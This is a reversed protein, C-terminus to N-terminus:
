KGKVRGMEEATATQRERAAKVNNNGFPMSYTLRVQRPEQDNNLRFVLGNDNVTARFNSTKFLDRVAFKLKAGNKFKKSFGVDLSGQAKSKFVGFVLPTNMWGSLEASYGKGLTFSNDLNFNWSWKQNDISYDQYTGKYSNWFGTVSANSNWWKKIPIPSAITFSFNDYDAFNANTQYASRSNPEQALIQSLANKTKSYFVSTSVMQRYTHTLMISNTFEPQLYPNGKGYTFEDIYFVFPNLDEYSPRNIRLSYALSLMNNDNINYNVNATPFLNTYSRTVTSDLTMSYGKNQTNEVRLGTQISVKKGIPVNYNVYAANINETYAFDNNRKVDPKFTGDPLKEEFFISNDIKVWSSKAGIEVSSKNKFPHVYDAKLAYVGFSTRNANKLFYANKTAKAAADLYNNNVAQTNTKMFTSYDADLTLERGLTDFTHKFNMNYAIRQPKANNNGTAYLKTYNDSNYGKIDITNDFDMKEVGYSGTTMLGFTTNKNLFFDVGVKGNISRERQDQIFAQDFTTMNSGKFIDREFLQRNDRAWTGLNVNAFANIKQNRYNLNTSLNSKPTRGYGGMAALNGNFGLNKDKKLKINIIGATGSADYRASPNNIIEIKDIMTAPMSQLYRALDEQSMQTIKDDIMVLVGGKGRLSIEKEQRIIVGPARQLAELATGQSAIASSEVNMIIKDGKMELLPKKAVVVVEGLTKNEISMQIDTLEMDKQNFNQLVSTFKKYGVYQVQVFYKGFPVEEFVYIGSDDTLAGKFMTSDTKMLLVSAFPLAQKKEDLLKGGIKSQAFLHIFTATALISTLILRKM